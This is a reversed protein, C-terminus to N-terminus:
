GSPEELQALASRAADLAELARRVEASADLRQRLCALAARPIAARAEALRADVLALAADRQKM